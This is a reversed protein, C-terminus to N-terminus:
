KWDQTLYKFANKPGGISFHEISRTGVQKGLACQFSWEKFQAATVSVTELVLKGFAIDTILSIFEKRYEDSVISGKIENAFWKLKEADSADLRKIFDVNRQAVEEKSLKRKFAIEKDAEEKEHEARIKALKKEEKAEKADAEAILTGIKSGSEKEIEAIIYALDLSALQDLGINISKWFIPRSNSEGDDGMYHICGYGTLSVNYRKHLGGDKKVICLRLKPYVVSLAARLKTTFKFITKESAFRAKKTELKKM